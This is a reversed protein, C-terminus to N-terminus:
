INELMTDLNENSLLMMEDIELHNHYLLAIKM